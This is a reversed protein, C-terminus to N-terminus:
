PLPPLPAVVISRSNITLSFQPPTFLTSPFHLSLLELNHPLSLRGPCFLDHRLHQPLSLPKDNSFPKFFHLLKQVPKPYAKIDKPHM